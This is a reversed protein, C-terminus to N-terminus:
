PESRGPVDGDGPRHRYHLVESPLFLYIATMGAIFGGLHAFFGVMSYRYGMEQFSQELFGGIVDRATQFIVFFWVPLKIPVPVPVVALFMLTRIQQESYLFLYAAMVAMIAGSAGLGPIEGQTMPLASEALVSSVGSIFISVLYFLAFKGPGLLDEVKRGFFLLMLMNGFLHWGDAHLFASTIMSAAGLGSGALVEAPTLMFSLLLGEWANVDGIWAPALSHVMVHAVVNIAIILWTMVPFRKSLERQDKLPLFSVLSLLLDLVLAAFIDL